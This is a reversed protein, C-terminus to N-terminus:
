LTWTELADPHLDGGRYAIVLYMMWIAVFCVLLLPVAWGAEIGDLWKLFPRRWRGPANDSRAAMASFAFDIALVIRSQFSAIRRQWWRHRKGNLNSWEIAWDSPFRRLNQRQRM